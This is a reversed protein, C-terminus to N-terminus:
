FFQGNKLYDVDDAKMSHLLRGIEQEKEQRRRSQDPQGLLEPTEVQWGHGTKIEHRGSRLLHIQPKARQPPQHLDAQARPSTQTQHAPRQILIRFISFYSFLRLNIHNDIFLITNWTHKILWKFRHEKNPKVFTGIRIFWTGKM